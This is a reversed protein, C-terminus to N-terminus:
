NVPTSTPTSTLEASPRVAMRADLRARAGPTLVRYYFMRPFTWNHVPEPVAAFSALFRVVGVCAVMTITAFIWKAWDPLNSNISLIHPWGATFYCMMMGAPSFLLIWAMQRGKLKPVLWWHLFGVTFIAAGNIFGWWYPFKLLTYPQLGYYEYINLNLGVTEMIADTLGGVAFAMYCQTVTIGKKLLYYVFYAELGFFAGYCPPILLPIDIGFNSFATPLNNAWRLHGLLDLMPESLSTLFGSAVALAPIWNRKKFGAYLCWPVAIFVAAAGAFFFFFWIAFQTAGFPPPSPLIHPPM